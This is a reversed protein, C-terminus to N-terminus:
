SKFLFAWLLRGAEMSSPNRANVKPRRPHVLVKFSSASTPAILPMKSTCGLKYIRATHSLGWSLEKTRVGVRLPEYSSLMLIRCEPELVWPLASGLVM